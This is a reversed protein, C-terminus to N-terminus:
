ALLAEAVPETRTAQMPASQPEGPKSIPPSQNQRRKVRAPTSITPSQAASQLHHRVAERDVSSRPHHPVPVLESSGVTTDNSTAGCRLLVFVKGFEGFSRDQGILRLVRRVIGEGRRHPIHTCHCNNTVPSSYDDSNLVHVLFSVPTIAALLERPGGLFLLV